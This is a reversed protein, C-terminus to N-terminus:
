SKIIFNRHPSNISLREKRHNFLHYTKIELMRCLIVIWATKAVIVAETTIDAMGSHFDSQISQFIYEVVIEEAVEVVAMQLVDAMVVTEVAVVLISRHTQMATVLVARVTEAVAM